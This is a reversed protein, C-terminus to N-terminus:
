PAPYWYKRHCNECAQDIDGGVDFLAAADRKDIAALAQTATQRLRLAHRAFLAPNKDIAKQIDRPSAM